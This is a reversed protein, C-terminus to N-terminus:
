SEERNPGQLVDQLIRDLAKDTPMPGRPPKEDMLHECKSQALLFPLTGECVRQALLYQQFTDATIMLTFAKLYAKHIETLPVRHEAPM